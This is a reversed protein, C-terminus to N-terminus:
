SIHICLCIFRTAENRYVRCGVFNSYGNSETENGNNREDSIGQYSHDNIFRWSQSFCDVKEHDVHGHRNEEMKKTTRSTYRWKCEQAMVLPTKAFIIYLTVGNRPLTEMSTEMWLQDDDCHIPKHSNFKGEM